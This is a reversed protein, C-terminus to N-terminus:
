KKAKYAANMEDLIKQGGKAQWDALAKDYFEIPQEGSIVKVVGEFLAKNLETGKEKLTPTPVIKITPDSYPTGMLAAKYSAKKAGRIEDSDNPNDLTADPSPSALIYLGPREKTGQDTYAVKGDKMTYHVGETGYNLLKYVDSNLDPTMQDDLFKLMRRVKNEDKSQSAPIAIFGNFGSGMAYGQFGEPTKLPPVPTWKFSPNVARAKDLREKTYANWAFDGIVGAKGSLFDDEAQNSKMIVFDKSIIGEKYLRSLYELSRRFNPHSLVPYIKGDTHETWNANFPTKMSGLLSVSGGFFGSGAALALGYTDKKGNGDPDNEVFKKMVAELEDYTSPMALGLKDLWDQRITLTHSAQSRLKPIGYIHGNFTLKDIIDKPIKALNPTDKENIYSELPMFVNNELYNYWAEDLAPIVTLDPIDGSAVAVGLKNMYDAAAVPIYTYDINYKDELLKVGSSKDPPAASYLVNMASVKIKKSTDLGKATGSSTQAAAQSAAPATETEKKDACGAIAPTLALIAAITLAFPKRM